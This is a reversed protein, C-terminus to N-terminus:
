KETLALYTQHILYLDHNYARLISDHLEEDLSEKMRRLNDIKRLISTQNDVISSLVLRVQTPDLEYAAM